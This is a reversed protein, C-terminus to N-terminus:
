ERWRPLTSLYQRVMEEAELLPIRLNSAMMLAYKM